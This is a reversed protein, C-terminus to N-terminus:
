FLHTSKGRHPLFLSGHYYRVAHHTVIVARRKIRKSSALPKPVVNWALLGGWWIFESDCCNVKQKCVINQMEFFYLIFYIRWLEFWFTFGEYIRSDNCMLYFIKPRKQKLQIISYRSINSYTIIYLLITELKLFNSNM